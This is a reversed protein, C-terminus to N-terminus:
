HANYRQMVAELMHEIGIEAFEARILEEGYPLFQVGDSTEHIMMIGASQDTIELAVQPEEVEANIFPSKDPLYSGVVLVSNGDIRLDQVIDHTIGCKAYLDGSTDPSVTYSRVNYIILQAERCRHVWVGHILNENEDEDYWEFIPELDPVNMPIVLADPGDLHVNNANLSPHDVEIIRQLIDRLGTSTAATMREIINM